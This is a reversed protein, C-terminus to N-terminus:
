LKEKYLKEFQDAWAQAKKPENAVKQRVAARAQEIPLLNSTTSADPAQDARGAGAAQQLPNPYDDPLMSRKMDEWDSSYNPDTVISRNATEQYKFHSRIADNNTKKLDAIVQKMHNKIDPSLTDNLNGTIYQQLGALQSTATDYSGHTMGIDTPAGGAYIGAIDAIVNQADQKTLMPNNLSSMARDARLNANAAMGLTSRSSATSPDSNKVIKEWSKQRLADQKTTDSVAANNKAIESLQLPNMPKAAELQSKYKEVGMLQGLKAQNEAQTDFASMVNASADVFPSQNAKGGKRGAEFYDMPSGM